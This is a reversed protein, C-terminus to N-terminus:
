IRCELMKKCILCEEPIPMSRQHKRLYGFQYPCNSDETAEEKQPEENEVPPPITKQTIQIEDTETDQEQNRQMKSLCKPCAQYENTLNALTVKALITQTIEEGCTQCKTNSEPQTNTFPQDTNEM